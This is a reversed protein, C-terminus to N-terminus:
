YPSSGPSVGLGEPVLAGRRVVVRSHIDLSCAQLYTRGGWEESPSVSTWPPSHGLDCLKILSHPGSGPEESEMGKRHLVHGTLLGGQGGPGGVEGRSRQVASLKWDAARESFRHSQRRDRTESPKGKVLSDLRIRRKQRSGPPGGLIEPQASRWPVSVSLASVELPRIVMARPM